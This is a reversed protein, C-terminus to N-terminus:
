PTTAGSSFYVLRPRNMRDTREANEETTFGASRSHSLPFRATQALNGSKWLRTNTADGGASPYLLPISERPGEGRDDNRRFGRRDSSGAIPTQVGRSSTVRETGAAATQAHPLEQRQDHPGDRSARPSRPAGHDAERRRCVRHGM